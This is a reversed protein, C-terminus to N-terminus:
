RRGRNQRHHSGPLVRNMTGFPSRAMRSGDAFVITTMGSFDSDTDDLALASRGSDTKFARPAISADAEDGRGHSPCDIENVPKWTDQAGGGLNSDIERAFFRAGRDIRAKRARGAQDIVSRM